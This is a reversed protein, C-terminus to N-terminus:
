LLEELEELRRIIHVDPPKEKTPVDSHDSLWVASWGADIAGEIDHEWSDGVCVNACAPLKAVDAAYEFIAREPKYAGADDPTVMTEIFADLQCHAIKRLQIDRAGDTIIGIRRGDTYLREVVERAGVYCACRDVYLDLYTDPVWDTDDAPLGLSELLLRFREVRVTEMSLSATRLSEKWLRGNIERYTDVWREESVGSWREDMQKLAVLAARSASLHDLLTQDLDFWIMEADPIKCQRTM